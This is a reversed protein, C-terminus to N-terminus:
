RYKLDIDGIDELDLSSDPSLEYIRQKLIKNMLEPPLKQRTVPKQPMSAANPSMSMEPGGGYPSDKMPIGTLPLGEQQELPIDNFDVDQPQGQMKKMIVANVADILNKDMPMGNQMEGGGISQPSRNYEQQPGFQEQKLIELLEQRHKLASDRIAGADEEYGPKDKLREYQESASDYSDPQLNHARAIDLLENKEKDKKEEERTRMLRIKNAYRSPSVAKLKELNEPTNSQDLNEFARRLGAM